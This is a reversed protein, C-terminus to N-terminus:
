ASLVDELAQCDKRIRREIARYLALTFAQHRLALEYLTEASWYTDGLIISGNELVGARELEVLAPRLAAILRERFVHVADAVGFRALRQRPVWRALRRFDEALLSWLPLEVARVRELVEPQEFAQDPVEDLRRECHEEHLLVDGALDACTAALDDRLADYTARVDPVAQDRLSTVLESITRLSRM